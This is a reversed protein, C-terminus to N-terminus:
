ATVLLVDVGPGLPVPWTGLLTLGIPGVVGVPGIVALKGEVVALVKGYEDPLVVAIMIGVPVPPVLMEKAEPSMVEPDAELPGITGAAVEPMYLLEVDERDLETKTVFEPVPLERDTIAFEVDGHVNGVRGGYGAFEVDLANKPELVPDYESVEGRLDLEVNPVPVSLM